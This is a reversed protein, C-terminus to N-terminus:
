IGIKRRLLRHKGLVILVSLATKSKNTCAYLAKPMALIFNLFFLFGFDRSNGKKTSSKKYDASHLWVPAKLVRSLEREETSFHTYHCM